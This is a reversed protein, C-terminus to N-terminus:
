ELEQTKNGEVGPEQALVPAIGNETMQIVGMQYLSALHAAQGPSHTIGELVAQRHMRKAWYDPQAAEIEDRTYTKEFSNFIDILHDIERAAGIAVLRTQELGLEKEQAEIEDIEDGTARLRKIEIETKKVSLSVSRVTYYLNQLELITQQYRMEDTDHQNVVFKELQYRSRPQQIEAMALLVNPAIKKELESFVPPLQIEM